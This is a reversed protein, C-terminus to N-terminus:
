RHVQPSDFNLRGGRTEVDALQVIANLLDGVTVKNEQTEPGVQIGHHVKEDICQRVDVGFANEVQTLLERFREVAEKENSTAPVLSTTPKVDKFDVALCNSLITRVREEMGQPLAVNLSSVVGM